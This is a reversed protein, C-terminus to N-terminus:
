EDKTTEKPFVPVYPKIVNKFDFFCEDCLWLIASSFPSEDSGDFKMPEISITVKHYGSLYAGYESDVTESQECKDCSVHYMPETIRQWVM